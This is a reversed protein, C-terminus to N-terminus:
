HFLFFSLTHIKNEVGLYAMTVSRLWVFVIEVHGVLMRYKNPIYLSLAVVVPWQCQLKFLTRNNLKENNKPSHRGKCNSNM